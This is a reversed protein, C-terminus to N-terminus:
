QRSQMYEKWRPLKIRVIGRQSGDIIGKEILRKRPESWENHKKKTLDLLESVPMSDKKVIFELFWKDKPRLENWIKNYVKQALADDVQALVMETIEKEGSDWMYKGFAQYAFAYGKTMQALSLATKDEVGLTRKYDAKIIEISLPSMEYKTARLFFTLGKTNEIEEIDEYLGAVLFYIPYEKRILIQFEQLFDVMAATNGVEDIAVLLRKKKRQLEKLLEELAVDISAVPPKGAINLGVGFASLNLNADVFAAVFPFKSYLFAVLERLIEGNSRMDAIVWKKDEKLEREIATLTVTKGSGRIGTLKFAQEDTVDSDLMEVIESVLLDRSIYRNPIRGFTVAYPNKEKRKM